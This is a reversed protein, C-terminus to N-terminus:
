GTNSPVLSPDIWLGRDLTQGPETPVTITRILRILGMTFSCIYNLPLFGLVDTFQCCKHLIQTSVPESLLAQELPSICVHDLLTLSNAM